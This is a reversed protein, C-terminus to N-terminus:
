NKISQNCYPHTLQLNEASCLGGDQARQIHDYSVSKATDLYGSCIPCKVSSALATRIFIQSKTDNSFKKPSEVNAVSTVIKGDLGAFKLLANEDVKNGIALATIVQDLFSVYRSVRKSSIQKQLITAILDKNTILISELDARVGTFMRFFDRNNEGLKKAVLKVTGMFMPSSHRGTPGYFYVAPHLGLSGGDNGTLRSMLDFTKKLVVITSSGDVDDLMETVNSPRGDQGQNAVLMLEILVQLATRVSKPGGLPLDLTKIPTKVEPDFLVKHLQKASTEIKETTSEQFASWYRHGKGARIVARAAIPVPKRRSKLLLEEIEDLPAGRTNIQFFSSEAKGADGSVWQVSLARSIVTHLRKKEAPELDPDDSRTQFHKWPGVKAAVLERTRKASKKQADSIEHGFFSSSLPGDGYDDEVWARLASLRHGGDIVFINTPSKWLIVSPILDGNVFCELLSAVQEPVWHNTERQFDPKRLSPGMLGGPTFDRIAIRQVMDYDVIGTDSAAFDERKIMADLNVLDSKGAM